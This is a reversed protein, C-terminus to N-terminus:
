LNIDYIPQSPPSSLLYGGPNFSFCLGIDTLVPQFAEASNCTKKMFQCQVAFILMCM